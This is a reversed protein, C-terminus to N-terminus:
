PNRGPRDLRPGRGPIPCPARARDCRRGRGPEPDSSTCRYRCRFRIPALAPARLRRFRAEFFLRDFKVVLDALRIVFQRPALRLPKPQDVSAARRFRDRGLDPFLNRGQKQECLAGSVHVRHARQAGLIGDAEGPAQNADRGEEREGGMRGDHAPLGASVERLEGLGRTTQSVERGSGEAIETPMPAVERRDASNYAKLGAPMMKGDAILREVRQSIRSRGRARRRGPRLVSRTANRM